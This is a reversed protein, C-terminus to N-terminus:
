SASVRWSAIHEPWEYDEYNGFGHNWKYYNPNEEDLINVNDKLEVTRAVIPGSLKADGFISIKNKAYIPGKIEEDGFSCNQSAHTFVMAPMSSSESVAVEVENGGLFWVYRGTFVLTGQVKINRLSIFSGTFVHIGNALTDNEYTYFNESHVAVANDMYYQLDAEPLFRFKRHKKDDSLGASHGNWIISDQAAIGRNFHHDEDIDTSVSYSKDYRDISVVLESAVTDYNVSVAGETYSTLTDVANIKWMAVSVSSEVEYQNKLSQVADQNELATYSSLNLVAVGSFSFVMFLTLVAALM